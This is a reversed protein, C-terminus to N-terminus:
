TKPFTFFVHTHGHAHVYSLTHTHTCMTPCMYCYTSCLLESCGPVVVNETPHEGSEM